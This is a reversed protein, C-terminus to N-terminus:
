RAFINPAEYGIYRQVGRARATNPLHRDEYDIPSPLWEGTPANYRWEHYAPPAPLYKKVWQRAEPSTLWLRNRAFWEPGLGFMESMRQQAAESPLTVFGGRPTRTVTVDDIIKSEVGPHSITGPGPGTPVSPTSQQLLRAEESAIRLRLVQNELNGRELQLKMLPEIAQRRTEESASAMMARSVGQGADSLANGISRDPEFSASVPTYTPTNVGLLALPHIGTAEYAKIADGARWQLGTTAFERQMAMQANLNDAQADRANGAQISNMIGGGLAAAGAIIAPWVM